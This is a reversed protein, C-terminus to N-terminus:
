QSSLLDRITTWKVDPYRRNDLPDLKARGSQMNHMYQGQQWRPFEESETEPHAARERAAYAKLDDLSGARVLEFPTGTLDQALAALQKASIQDGAIRLITPADADLAAAATFDATNDMTTFDLLQDPDGYYTVTKAKRDFLPMGYTLLEMFAGNLVSTAKIDATDLRRHFERRLDFNRNEGDDLKFFDAAFDSPIFRKAGAGIAANLLVAQAEVIVERLGQLASVVVAADGIAETLASQDTLDVTAIEVDLARLKALKEESTGNRVLARVKGGRRVLAAVIRGGLNGTAGAVAITATM